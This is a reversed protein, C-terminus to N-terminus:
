IIKGGCSNELEQYFYEWIDYYGGIGPQNCNCFVSHGAIDAKGDTARHQPCGNKCISEWKCDKVSELSIKNKQAFIKFSENKDVQDLTTNALSGFSYDKKSFPRTCPIYDGNGDIAVIETCRGNFYCSKQSGTVVANLFDSFLHFNRTETDMKWEEFVEKIFNTFVDIDTFKKIHKFNPHIDFSKINFRKINNYYEKGLNKHENNVVSIIHFPIKHANLENLKQVIIDFTGGRKSDYRYQDHVDKIGDFSISLKFNNEKIFEYWEEDLFIANTQISNLVESKYINFENQYKVVNRYFDLGLLLPEGGHWSFKSIELNKSFIEKITKILDDEKMKKNSPDFFEPDEYCYSCRLNCTDSIPKILHDQIHHNGYTATDLNFIKRGVREVFQVEKREFIDNVKLYLNPMTSKQDKSLKIKTYLKKLIEM